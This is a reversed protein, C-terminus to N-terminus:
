LIHAVYMVLIYVIRKGRNPPKTYESCEFPYKEHALRCLMCAYYLMCISVTYILVYIIYIIYTLHFFNILIVAMNYM